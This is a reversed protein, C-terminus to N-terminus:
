RDGFIQSTGHLTAGGPGTVAWDLERGTARDVHMKVTRGGVAVEMAWVDRPAGGIEVSEASVVRHVTEAIEGRAPDYGSVRIVAGPCLAVARIATSTVSHDFTGEPLAQDITKATDGHMARGTVRGDRYSVDFRNGPTDAWHRIPAWTRADVWISDLATGRPSSGRQAFLLAPRGSVSTRSVHQSYAGFPRVAGEREMTMQISDAPIATLRALRADGARITTEGATCGGQALTLRPGIALASLTAAAALARRTFPMLRFM